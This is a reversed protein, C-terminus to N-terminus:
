GQSNQHSPDASTVAALRWGHAAAQFASAEDVTSFCRLPIALGSARSSWIILIGRAISIDQVGGWKLATSMLGTTQTAGEPSITVTNEQYPTPDTQMVQAHAMRSTWDKTYLEPAHYIAFFTILSILFATEQSNTRWLAILGVSMTAVLLLCWTRWLRPPNIGAYQSASITSTYAEADEDTWTVTVSLEDAQGVTMGGKAM